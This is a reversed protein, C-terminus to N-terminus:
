RHTMCTCTACTSGIATLTGTCSGFCNGTGICALQGVQGTNAGIDLAGNTAVTGIGVNGGEVEFSSTVATTGFGVNGLVILGNTPAAIGAYSAGISANTGVMLGSNNLTTGIGVNAGTITLITNSSNVTLGTSRITGSVDLLQGPTVSGIGVNGGSFQYVNAGANAGSLNYQFQTSIGAPTGGGGGSSASWTVDGSSDLATMVYGTTAGPLVYGLARVTGGVDLLKGPNISGVGVNGGDAVTMYDGTTTLTSSIDFAPSGTKHTIELTADPTTDTGVGVNGSDAGITFIPVTPKTGVAATSGWYVNSTTNDSYRALFSSGNLNTIESNGNINDFTITGQVDLTTIPTTTKIGVNGNTLINFTPSSVNLNAPDFQFGGTGGTLGPGTGTFSASNSTFNIARVTGQVDLTTGPNTSGIGVNAPGSSTGLDTVSGNQLTPPNSAGNKVVPIMTNTLTAYSLTSFTLLLILAMFKKM